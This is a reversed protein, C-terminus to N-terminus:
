CNRDSASTAIVILMWNVSTFMAVMESLIGFVQAPFLYNLGIMPSAAATSVNVARTPVGRRGSNAWSAPASGDLALSRLVRTAGFLISDCSSIVVTILIFNLLSGALPVGLRILVTVLPSSESGIETQPLLLLLSGITGVYFVVIRVLLGNVARPLTRSPDATEAAALSILEVDGFSFLAIPLVTCLGLFGTPFYSSLRWPNSFHAGLLGLGPLLVAALGLLIFCTLSTIKILALWFESEGFLRVSARNVVFLLSLAAFPAIWRPLTPLWVHVFLGVATLEAMGVLVLSFWYSWGSVFAYRSGLQIGIYNVFTEQGLDALALEGLCRAIIYVVLGCLAYALIVAPGAMQIARASGIFLGAGITGGM